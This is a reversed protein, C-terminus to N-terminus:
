KRIFCIYNYLMPPWAGGLQLAFDVTHDMADHYPSLQMSSNWYQDFVTEQYAHGSFLYIRFEETLASLGIKM